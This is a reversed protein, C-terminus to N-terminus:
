GNKGVEQKNYMEKDNVLIFLMFITIINISIASLILGSDNVIFGIISGVVCSLYSKGLGNDMLKKIKDKLLYSVIGHVIINVLLVNTWFSSGVLRINMLLKRNIINTVVNFGEDSIKLLARALHTPNPNLKVDIYGFIAIIIGVIIMIQIINKLNLKKGIAEIIFHLTTSLFAITGGVNAGLKPHGVMATSLILLIAPIVKNNYRYYLLGASLTSMALFLGVMENGIGFYRAGIIPDHSMISFKTIAGSFIIDMSIIVFFIITLCYLLKKNNYKKVVAVFICILSFLSVFFKFLNDIEFLSSLIFAIPLGFLLILLIKLIEGIRNNIKIKFVFTLMVITMIIISVIGYVTLTKSRVISTLNIRRNMSEIYKFTDEKEEEYEIINGSMNEMSVNLFNTITPAIDLNSVIGLRNTTSSTVLGKDIGDQWLIIPSLKSDDIREESSNPSLIMLLSENEKAIDILDGIFKDINDLNLERKKDFIDDSLVNSYSNLRDLDGTDIVVLSAKEKIDSVENIIRDYDTRIGYPYDEDKILIDEVNGYDILGRSDMPILASSRIIDEDTDSNGYIATKLNNDHLRDGLIGLYPSYRNGDNQNYLMGIKINGVAYDKDLIGMRNEYVKKCENTLNHFQASENNAYAKSSANITIFSEAGRYGSEGRVNMLGFNGDDILRNLKPMKEIDKLTLKNIVVVYVNKNVKKNSAGYNFENICLLLCLILFITVFIRTRKM